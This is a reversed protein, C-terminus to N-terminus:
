QEKRERLVTGSKSAKYGCFGTKTKYIYLFQKYSCTCSYYSTTKSWWCIDGFGWLCTLRGERSTLDHLYSSQRKLSFLFSELSFFLIHFKWELLVFQLSVTIEIVLSVSINPTESSINTFIALGMWIMASIYIMMCTSYWEFQVSKPCTLVCIQIRKHELCGRATGICKYTDWQPTREVKEASAVSMIFSKSYCIGDFFHFPHSCLISLLSCHSCTDKFLSCHRCFVVYIISYSGHM